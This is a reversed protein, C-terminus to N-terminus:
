WRVDLTYRKYVHLLINIPLSNRGSKLLHHITKGYGYEEVTANKM